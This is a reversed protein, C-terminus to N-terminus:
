NFKFYKALRDIALLPNKNVTNVKHISNREPLIKIKASSKKNGEKEMREILSTIAPLVHYKHLFLDRSRKVFPLAKDYPDEQLLQDIMTFATTKDNIDVSLFSRKDYYKDIDPCGFYVPMTFALFCESIKETFYGPISNNEIAVSYKYDILADFKDPIPNIGRGFVDIKDKFRDKLDLIFELRKKHGPLMTQNSCVVSLKKSKQPPQLNEFFDYSKKIYWPAFEHIQIVSYKELDKRVTAVRTFQRLFKEDFQRKNHAEDTIFIVTGSQVNAKEQKLVGGWVIWYDCDNCDNNIELKFNNVIGKGGPTQRYYDQNWPTTLKITKM